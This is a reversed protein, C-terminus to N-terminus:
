GAARAALEGLQALSASRPRVLPLGLGRALVYNALLGNMQALSFMITYFEPSRLGCCWLLVGGAADVNPWPNKAAGHAKLVETGARYLTCALRFLPEDPCYREGFAKLMEFRPDLGRLVAHGFGPIIQKAELRARCAAAVQAESADAGLERELQRVFELCTQAAKGHIPGALANVSAVLALYPDALASGVTHCAFASANGNEHDSHVVNYLRLLASLRESQAASLGATGGGHQKYWRAEVLMFAVPALVRLNLADELAAEWLKDRPIKGYALAVASERQMALLLLSYQTVPHMDAPLSELLVPLYDPAPLRTRRERDLWDREAADPLEGTLLLWFMDDGDCDAFETVHRGRLYLGTQPDVSSTDCVLGRIGRMGGLVQAVSVGDLVRAGHQAVLQQLEARWGPLLAALKDQLPSM